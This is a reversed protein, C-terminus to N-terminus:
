GGKRSPNPLADAGYFEFKSRTKRASGSMKVRFGINFIILTVLDVVRYREKKSM